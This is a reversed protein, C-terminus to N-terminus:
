VLLKDVNVRRKRNAAHNIFHVELTHLEIFGESLKLVVDTHLPFSLLHLPENFCEPVDVWQPTSLSDLPGATKIGAYLSKMQPCKKKGTM